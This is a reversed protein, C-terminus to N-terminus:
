NGFNSRIFLTCKYHVPTHNSTIIVGLLAKPSSMSNFLIVINNWETQDSETKNYETEDLETQDFETIDSETLDFDPEILNQEILNLLILENQDKETTWSWNCM